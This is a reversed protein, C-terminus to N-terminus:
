SPWMRSVREGTTPQRASASRWWTYTAPPRIRSFATRLDVSGDGLDVSEEFRAPDGLVGDHFHYYGSRSAWTDVFPGMDADALAAWYLDLCFGVDGGVTAHRLIEM